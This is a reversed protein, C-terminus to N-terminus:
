ADGEDLRSCTMRLLIHFLFHSWLPVTYCLMRVFSGFSLSVLLIGAGTALGLALVPQDRLLIAYLIIMLPVPLYASSVGLVPVHSLLPVLVPVACLFGLLVLASRATSLGLFDRSAAFIYLLVFGVIPIVDAAAAWPQAYTHFLFSGIGSASLLLTLAWAITQGSGRLRIAMVLAAFLFAGNTLANVPEAWFGPDHRECYGDLPQTWDM